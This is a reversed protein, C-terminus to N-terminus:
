AGKGAFPSAFSVRGSDLAIIDRDAIRTRFRGDRYLETQLTEGPYVPATFRASMASLQAPDAPSLHRAAAYAAFGFSCMGHLIPREFGAEAAVGPDAHLRNRDGNLRYLLAQDTSTPSDIRAAVPAAAEEPRRRQPGTSADPEFGDLGRLLHKQEVRAFCRGQADFIARSSTLISGRGSGRDALAVIQTKGIVTGKTPIAGLIVMAQEIHLIQTADLGLAPDGLWFGPYGMVLVISPFSAFGGHDPDVFRLAVPDVSDVGIGISLAYLAASEPSALTAAEPVQWGRLREAVERM